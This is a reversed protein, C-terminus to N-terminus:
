PPTLTQVVASFYPQSKMWSRRFNKEERLKSNYSGINEKVFLHILQTPLM